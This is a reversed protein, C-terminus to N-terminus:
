CNKLFPMENDKDILKPLATSSSKSKTLQFNLKAKQYLSTSFGEFVTEQLTLCEDFCKLFGNWCIIALKERWLIIM